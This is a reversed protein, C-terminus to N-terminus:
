RASWIISKSLLFEELGFEGRELGLGSQKYGGFATHPSSGAGGGNIYIMGTRLRKAIEYARVPSQAWVGGGLGFESDNALRVAEDDDDFAIVVGVPGFFEQRAVTMSNDVDVFLTPEVFFGKDLHAPRGGGYAVQAGEARGASILSEVKARQAASILPGMTTAPDAPDGVTIHDLRQKVLGVLEDLRSRHVLTRTLLSCGQGAHTTMGNVITPVVLDLDVDATIINASKGGLELVVKKLSQAAQTYVLRGVTDSGTFSVIDVGPHTTLAEGAAIGGSVINLVGPPLGAEDAMEGLVFAELPTTPAPKLVVTCGAALAPALKLINLFLPFNYASILAAVGYPERRVVGQALTPGVTPLMAREFPFQRLVREAMDRFHHLPVSVQLTDALARTSGAERVSLEKLEDVRREMVDAMRLLVTARENASLTPWPGEDFARRAAAVARDVDTVTGDPVAGIVEETAPNLVELVGDGDSDRWAGDIYLQYTLASM